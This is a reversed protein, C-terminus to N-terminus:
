YIFELIEESTIDGGAESFTSSFTAVGCYTLFRPSVRALM